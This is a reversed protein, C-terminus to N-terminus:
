KALYLAAMGPNARLSKSCLSMRLAHLHGASKEEFWNITKQLGAQLPTKSQWGFRALARSTDLCRRPQGDPKTGDWFVTGKYDM